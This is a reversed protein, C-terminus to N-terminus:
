SPVLQATNNLSDWQHRIQQVESGLYRHSDLGLDCISWCTEIKHDPLDFCIVLFEERVQPKLLSKLSTTCSVSEITIDDMYIGLYLFFSLFTQANWTCPSFLPFCPSIQSLLLGLTDFSSDNRCPRTHIDALLSTSCLQRGSWFRLYHIYSTPFQLLSLSNLSLTHFASFGLSLVHSCHRALCVKPLSLKSLSLSSLPFWTIHDCCELHSIIHICILWKQFTPSHFAIGVPWLRSFSSLLLSLLQFDCAQTAPVITIDGMWGDVWGHKRLEDVLM